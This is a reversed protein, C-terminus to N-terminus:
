ASTTANDPCTYSGGDKNRYTRSIADSNRYGPTHTIYAEARTDRNGDLCRQGRDASYM